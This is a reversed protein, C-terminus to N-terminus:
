LSQNSEVLNPLDCATSEPVSDHTILTINALLQFIRSNLRKKLKSDLVHRSTVKSQVECIM